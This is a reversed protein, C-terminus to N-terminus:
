KVEDFSVENTEDGSESEDSEIDPTWDCDKESSEDGQSSWAYYDLSPEEQQENEGKSETDSGSVHMEAEYGSENDVTPVQQLTILIFM